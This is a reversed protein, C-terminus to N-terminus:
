SLELDCPEIENGESLLATCWIVKDLEMCNGPWPYSALLEKASPSLSKQSNHMKLFHEALPVIDDKRERLPPMHFGFTKLNTYLGSDFKQSEVLASMDTHNTISVIHADYPYTKQKGEYREVHVGRDIFSKITAQAPYPMLEVHDLVTVQKGKGKKNFFHSLFDRSNTACFVTRPPKRYDPNNTRARDNFAEALFNKGTGTEGTIFIQLPSGQRSLIELKALIKQIGPHRSRGLLEYASEKKAM